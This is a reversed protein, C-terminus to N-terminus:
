ERQSSRVRVTGIRETSHGPSRGIFIASVVSCNQTAGPGSGLVTSTPAQFPSWRQVTYMRLGPTM